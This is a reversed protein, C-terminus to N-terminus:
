LKTKTTVQWRYKQDRVEQLARASIKQVHFRNLRSNRKSVNVILGMNAAMGTFRRVFFPV